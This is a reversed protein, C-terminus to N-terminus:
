MLNLNLNPVFIRVQIINRYVKYLYGIMLFEGERNLNECFRANRSDDVAMLFLISKIYVVFLIIYLWYMLFYIYIFVTSEM